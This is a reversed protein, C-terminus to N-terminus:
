ADQLEPKNFMVEKTDKICADFVLVKKTIVREKWGNDGTEINNPLFVRLLSSSIVNKAYVLTFGHCLDIVSLKLVREYKVYNNWNEYQSEFYGELNMTVLNNDLRKEEEINKYVIM